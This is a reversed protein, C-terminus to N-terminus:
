VDLYSSANGAILMAVLAPIERVVSPRFAAM